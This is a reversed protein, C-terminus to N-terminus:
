RARRLGKIINIHKENLFRFGDIQTDSLVLLKKRIESIIRIVKKEPVTREITKDPNTFVYRLGSSLDITRICTFGPFPEPDFLGDMQEKSCWTTLLGQLQAKSLHRMHDASLHKLAANIESSPYTSLLKMADDDDVDFQKLFESRSLDGIERLAATQATQATQHLESQKSEDTKSEDMPTYTQSEPITPLM